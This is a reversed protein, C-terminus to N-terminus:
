NWTIINTKNYFQFFWKKDFCSNVANVFEGATVLLPKDSPKRMEGAKKILCFYGDEAKQYIASLTGDDNTIIVSKVAKALKLIKDRTGKNIQINNALM